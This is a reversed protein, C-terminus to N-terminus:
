YRCQRSIQEISRNAPWLFFCRGRVSIHRENSQTTRMSANKLDDLLCDKNSTDGYTSVYWDTNEYPAEEDSM